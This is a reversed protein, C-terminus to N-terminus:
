WMPIHLLCSVFTNFITSSGNLFCHNSYAVGATVTLLEANQV